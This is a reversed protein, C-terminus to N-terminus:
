KMFETILAMAEPKYHTGHHVRIYKNVPNANRNMGHSYRFQVQLNETDAVM